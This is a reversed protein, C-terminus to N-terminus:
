AMGAPPVLSGAALLLNRRTFMVNFVPTAKTPLTKALNYTSGPAEPRAADATDSSQTWLRVTNDASGALLVGKMRTSGESKALMQVTPPTISSLLLRSNCALWKM